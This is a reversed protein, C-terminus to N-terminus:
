IRLSFCLREHHKITLQHVAFVSRVKRSVNVREKFGLSNIFHDLADQVVTYAYCLLTDVQSKLGGGGNVM